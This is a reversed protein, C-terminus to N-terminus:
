KKKKGKHLLQTQVPLSSYMDLKCAIKVAEEPTKGLHMATDAVM